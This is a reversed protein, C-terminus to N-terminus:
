KQCRYNSRECIVSIKEFPIRITKIFVILWVPLKKLFIETYFRHLRHSFVM